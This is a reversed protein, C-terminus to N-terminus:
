HSLANQLTSKNANLSGIISKCGNSTTSNEIKPPAGDFTAITKRASAAVAEPELLAHDCVMRFDKGADAFWRRANNMERRRELSLVPRGDQMRARPMADNMAQQIVARWLAIEGRGTIANM